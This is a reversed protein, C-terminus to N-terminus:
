SRRRSRASRSPRSCRRPSTGPVSSSTAGVGDLVTGPTGDFTVHGLRRTPDYRFVEEVPAGEVVVGVPEGDRTAAVVLLDAGPADIVWHAEGSVNGDADVTPAPVRAIGAGDVTWGDDLDGPPLAGVFAARKAGSAVEEIGDYGAADLLASAPLHGLLEVGALVRGAESMVLVADFLGLGAGGSEDSVLLGPWGAEVATPWLDPQKGGDLTERAAEVTKTRSLADRAADRLFIQEDSLELNM